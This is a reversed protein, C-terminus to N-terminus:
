SMLANSHGSSATGGRDKGEELEKVRNGERSTGRGEASSSVSVPKM